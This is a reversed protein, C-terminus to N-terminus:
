SHNGFLNNVLSLRLLSPTPIPSVDFPLSEHCMTPRLQGQEAPPEQGIPDEDIPHGHGVRRVHSPDAALRGPLPQAPELGLALRTELIARRPGMALWPGQRLLLDIGDEGGPMGVPESGM